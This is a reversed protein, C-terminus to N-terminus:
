ALVNLYDRIAAVTLNPAGAAVTHGVDPVRHYTAHPLAAAIADSDEVPCIPDQEGALVLVPKDFSAIADLYDFSAIEGAAFRIGLDANYRVRQGSPRKHHPWAEPEEASPWRPTYLPLCTQLYATFTDPDSPTTWYARAADAAADGGIRRFAEVVRDLSWSASTNELVLGGILHPAQAALELAVFGGASEGLIVPQDLGLQGILAAIDRAWTALTWTEPSGADSAGCGRLDVYVLRAMTSLEDFPLGPQRFSLHDNGPGGHLFLITPCRAWDWGDPRLEAGVVDVFLRVEGTDVRM